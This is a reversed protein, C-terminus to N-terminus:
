YTRYRRTRENGEEERVSIGVTQSCDVARERNASVEFEWEIVKKDHGATYLISDPADNLALSLANTTQQALISAIKAMQPDQYTPPLFQMSWIGGVRNMYETHTLQALGQQRHSFFTSVAPLFGQPYVIIVAVVYTM